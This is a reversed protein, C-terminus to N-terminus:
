CQSVSNVQPGYTVWPLSIDPWCHFQEPRTDQFNYPKNIITWRQSNNLIKTNTWRWHTYYSDAIYQVLISLSPVYNLMECQLYTDLLTILRIDVLQWIFCWGIAIHLGLDNFHLLYFVGKQLTHMGDYHHTAWILQM